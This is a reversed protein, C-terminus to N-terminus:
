IKKFNKYNIKNKNIEKEILEIQNNNFKLEYSEKKIKNSISITFDFNYAIWGTKINKNINPEALNSNFSKFMYKFDDFHKSPSETKSSFNFDLLILKSLGEISTSIINKYESKPYNPLLSKNNKYCYKKNKDCYKKIEQYIQTYIRDADAANQPSFEKYIADRIAWMTWYTTDLKAHPKGDLLSSWSKGVEGELYKEVKKFTPSAKYAM